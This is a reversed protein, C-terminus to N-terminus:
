NNPIAQYYYYTNSVENHVLCIFTDELEQHLYILTGETLCNSEMENSPLYNYAVKNSVTGIFDAENFVAEMATIGEIHYLKGNMWLSPLATDPARSPKPSINEGSDIMNTTNEQTGINEDKPYCAILTAFLLLVFMLLITKKNKM